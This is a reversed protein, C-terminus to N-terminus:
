EKLIKDYLPQTTTKPISNARFQYCKLEENIKDEQEKLM